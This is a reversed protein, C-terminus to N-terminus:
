RRPVAGPRVVLGGRRREPRLRCKAFSGALRVPMGAACACAGGWPWRVAEEPGRRRPFGGSRARGELDVASSPSATRSVAPSSPGSPPSSACGGARVKLRTGERAWGIGPRGRCLTPAEALERGIRAWIAWIILGSPVYACTLLGFAGCRASAQCDDRDSATEHSIPERPQGSNLRLAGTEACPLCSAARVRRCSTPSERSAARSVSRWTRIL